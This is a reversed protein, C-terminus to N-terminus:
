QPAPAPATNGGAPLKVDIKIDTKGGGLYGGRWAFFAAGAALLVLVFIVVIAVNSGGGNNDGMPVEKPSRYVKLFYFSRIRFYIM